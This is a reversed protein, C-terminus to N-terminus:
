LIKKWIFVDEKCNFALVIQVKVTTKEQENLINDHYVPKM